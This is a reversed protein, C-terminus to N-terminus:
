LLEAVGAAIGAKASGVIAGKLVHRAGCSIAGAAGGLMGGILIEPGHKVAGWVGGAVDAGIIAKWAVARLDSTSGEQVAGWYDSSYRGIATASLLVFCEYDTYEDENKMIKQELSQLSTSVFVFDDSMSVDLIKDLMRQAGVSLALSDEQVSSNVNRVFSYSKGVTSGHSLLSLDGSISDLYQEASEELVALLLDTDAEDDLSRLDPTNKLVYDLGENHLIGVSEYPNVLLPNNSEELSGTVYDGCSGLLFFAFIGIYM